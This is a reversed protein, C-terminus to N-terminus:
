EDTLLSQVDPGVAILIDESTLTTDTGPRIQSEPIGLLEALYRATAPNGTYDLIYTESTVPEINGTGIVDVGRLNLWTATQGALGPIGANNFVVITADEAEAQQRLDAITVTGRDAPNFTEQVVRSIESQIPFLVQENEQSVGFEVEGPTIAGFTINGGPIESGLRALSLIDELALSTVFSGTLESYLTPIEAIFNLIGGANLVTEQLGLIVEQQRQNRDFDSGETARTRAYQLLREGALRQCGAEFRVEITGFGADPYDPDYIEEEPCVEVGEPAITDVVAVFVDFNVRVYHDVRVGTLQRVTEMALAPGGGPLENIDGLYNATNIRNAGFGPIEVWLDRPLSLIGVRRRVPDVSVLLMTDTRYAREEDPMASRQDIGMVLITIRRPDNWIPPLPDLTATLEASIPAPTITEGPRPTSTPPAPTSTAAATPTAPRAAFQVATPQDPFDIAVQRAFSFSLWSCFGTAAVFIIVGIAAAWGPIRM